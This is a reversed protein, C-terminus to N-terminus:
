SLSSGNARWSELSESCEATWGQAPTLSFQRFGIGTRRPLCMGLRVLENFDSLCTKRSLNPTYLGSNTVAEDQSMWTEPRSMLWSLLAMRRYAVRRSKGFTLYFSRADKDGKRGRQDGFVDSFLDESRMGRGMGQAYSQRARNGLKMSASYVGLM